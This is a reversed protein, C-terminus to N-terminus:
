KGYNATTICKRRPSIVTLELTAMWWKGLRRAETEWQVESLDLGRLTLADEPPITVTLDDSIVLKGEPAAAKLKSLYALLEQCMSDLEAKCRAGESDDNIVTRASSASKQPMMFLVYQRYAIVKQNRDTVAVHIRTDYGMCPYGITNFHAYFDNETQETDILFFAKHKNKPDPDHAIPKYIKAWEEIINSFTIM